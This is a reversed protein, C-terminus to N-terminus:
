YSGHHDDASSMSAKDNLEDHAGFDRQSREPVGTTVLLLTKRSGNTTHM